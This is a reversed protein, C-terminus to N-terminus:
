INESLSELYKHHMINYYNIFEQYNAMKYNPLIFSIDLCMIIQLFENPIENELLLNFIIKDLTCKMINNDIQIKMYNNIKLFIIEHNCYKINSINSDVAELNEFTNRCIDCCFRNNEIKFNRSIFYADGHANKIKIDDLIWGNEIEKKIKTIYKNMNVDKLKLNNLLNNQNLFDKLYPEYSLYNSLTSHTKKSKINQILKQDDLDSLSKIAITKIYNPYLIINQRELKGEIDIIPFTIDINISILNSNNKMMGYYQFLALPNISITFSITRFLLSTYHSTSTYHNIGIDVLTQENATDIDHIFNIFNKNYKSKKRFKSDKKCSDINMFKDNKLIKLFNIIEQKKYFFLDLDNPLIMRNKWNEADIKPNFINYIDTIINPLNNYKIIADRRIALDVVAGGYLEASSFSFATSLIHDVICSKALNLNLCFWNNNFQVMNKLVNSENIQNDIQKELSQASETKM